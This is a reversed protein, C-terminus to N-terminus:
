RTLFLKIETESTKLAILYALIGFLNITIGLLRWFQSPWLSPDKSIGSIVAYVALLFVITSLLYYTYLWKKLCSIALIIIIATLVILVPYSVTPGIPQIYLAIQYLGIINWVICLLIYIAQIKLALIYKNEVNNKTIM